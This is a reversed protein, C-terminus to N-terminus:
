VFTLLQIKNRLLAEEILNPPYLNQQHLVGAFAPILFDIWINTDVIVRSQKQSRM